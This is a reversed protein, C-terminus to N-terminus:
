ILGFDVFASAVNATSGYDNSSVYMQNTYGWDIDQQLPTPPVRTDPPNLIVEVADVQVWAISFTSVRVSPFEVATRPQSKFSAPSRNPM